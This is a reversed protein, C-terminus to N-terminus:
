RGPQTAPANWWPATQWIRVTHDPGCGALRRGDPSFAVRGKCGEITLLERGTRADWIRATNDGGTTAIRHGDPSYSIASVPEGHGVLKAALKGTHINWITVDRYQDRFLSAVALHDGDSSFAMDSGGLDNCLITGNGTQTDWLRVTRDAGCSAIQGGGPSIAVAKCAKTHGKLTKRLSGDVSNRILVDTTTYPGPSAFWTGDPSVAVSAAGPLRVPEADGQTDFVAITTDSEAAFLRKGDRSWAVCHFTNLSTRALLQRGTLPDWMRITDDFGASALRSGDRSWAISTIDNEHGRLTICEPNRRVNWFKVAGDLSGSVLVEGHPAFALSTVMSRHGRLSMIEAGSAADWLRTVSDLGGCALRAGDPSFAVCTVERNQAPLTLVEKGTVADLVAVDKGRCFAIRTGDNSLTLAPTALPFRGSERWAQGQLTYSVLPGKLGGVLLRRGDPLFLGQRYDQLALSFVPTGSEKLCAEEHADEVRWIRVTQDNSGSAIRTGDPSFAISRILQTHGSFTAVKRRPSIDWVTVAKDSSPAAIRRGDRSFAIALVPGTLGEIPPLVRGTAAERLTIAKNSGCALYRGDPPFAVCSIQSPHQEPTAMEMATLLRVRGWEWHRYEAPCRELAALAMDVNADRAKQDALGILAVYSEWEAQRRAVTEKAQATVARDREGEARKWENEARGRQYVAQDRQYLAAAALGSMIALLVALLVGANRMRRARREQDRQRLDDFRVGLICALMRLLAMRKLHRAPELRSARVDAALPEVEEIEERSAGAADTVTRRIERLAQPFSQNPEGEILLALIQNHRGMERFRVVEKNVWQSEVTRPSCIVILFRSDRLASEIEANLDASAPLEEEDRFCRGLRPPLGRSTALAQPVRFTELSAHLWKAWTRDPEVHRYSIFAQYRFSSM